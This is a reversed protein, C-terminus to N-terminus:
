SATVPEDAISVHENPVCHTMVHGEVDRPGNNGLNDLRQQEAEGW